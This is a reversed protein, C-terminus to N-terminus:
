LGGAGVIRGICEFSFNNFGWAQHCWHCTFLWIKKKYRPSFDALAARLCFAYLSDISLCVFLCSPLEGKTPTKVVSLRTSRSLTCLRGDELEEGGHTLQHLQQQNLLLSFCPALSLSFHCYALLVASVGFSEHEPRVWRRRKIKFQNTRPGYLVSLDWYSQQSNTQKYILM